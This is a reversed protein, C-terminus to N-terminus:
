TVGVWHGDSLSAGVRCGNTLPETLHPQASEKLATSACDAGPHPATAQSHHLTDLILTGKQLLVPLGHALAVMHMRLVIDPCLDEVQICLLTATSLFPTIFSFYSEQLLDRHIELKALVGVVGVEKSDFLAQSEYVSDRGVACLQFQM